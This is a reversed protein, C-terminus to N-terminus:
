YVHIYIYWKCVENLHNSIIISRRVDVGASSIGVYLTSYLVGVNLVIGGM